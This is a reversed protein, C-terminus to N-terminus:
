FQDMGYSPNGINEQANHIRRVLKLALFCLPIHILFGVMNIKTALILDSVTEDSAFARGILSGYFNHVLWMGWWFNVLTVSGSKSWQSGAHSAQWLETMAQFPRVLNLFPVFFWGLAWGPTYSLREIKLARLNKHARVIWVGFVIATVLYIGVAGLSISVMRADNASAEAQTIVLGINARQLLDLQSFAALTQAVSGAVGFVLLVTIISTLGGLSRYIHLHGLSPNVTSTPEAPAQYPNSM